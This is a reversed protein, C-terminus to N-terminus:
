GPSMRTSLNYLGATAAPILPVAITMVAILMLKPDGGALRPWNFIFLDATFHSIIVTLAGFRLFGWGWVCGM